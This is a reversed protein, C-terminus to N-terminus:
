KAEEQSKSGAEKIYPNMVSENSTTSEPIKM